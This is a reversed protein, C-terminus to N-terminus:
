PWRCSASGFALSTMVIPRLRLKCAELTAAILGEGQELQTKAFQRHPNRKEHDIWFTLLGIQFYVDNPTGPRPPMVGGIIGLPLVLMISIPVTLKEYLAAARPLDCSPFRSCSGTQAAWGSRTPSDTWDHGIGQPLKAVIEEMAQM